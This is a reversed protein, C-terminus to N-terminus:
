QYQENKMNYDNSYPRAQHYDNNYQNQQYQGNKMNYDNSYPRAQHYNNSYQNHQYQGNKMNYDNSSPRAQHYNNSYQNQQYQQMLRFFQYMLHFKGSDRNDNGELLANVTKYPARFQPLFLEPADQQACKAVAKKMQVTWIKM